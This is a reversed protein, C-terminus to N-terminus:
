TQVPSQNSVLFWRFYGKGRLDLAEETKAMNEGTKQNRVCDQLPITPKV